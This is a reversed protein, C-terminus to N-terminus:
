STAFQQSESESIRGPLMPLPKPQFPKMEDLMRGHLLLVGKTPARRTGENGEESGLQPSDRKEGDSQSAAPSTWLLLISHDCASHRHRQSQGSALAQWSSCSTGRLSQDPREGAECFSCLRLRRLSLLKATSPCECSNNLLEEENGERSTSQKSDIHVHM